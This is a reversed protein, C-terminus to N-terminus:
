QKTFKGKEDVGGSQEPKINSGVVLLKDVM